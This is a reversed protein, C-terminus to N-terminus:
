LGGKPNTTLAVMCARKLRAVVDAASDKPGLEVTFEVRDNEYPKTVRLMSYTISKVKM